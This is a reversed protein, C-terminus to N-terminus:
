LAKHMDNMDKWDQNTYPGYEGERRGQVRENQRRWAGAAEERLRKMSPSPMPTLQLQHKRLYAMFLSRLHALGEMDPEQQPFGHPKHRFCERVVDVMWTAEDHRQMDEGEETPVMPSFIYDGHADPVMEDIEKDFSYRM